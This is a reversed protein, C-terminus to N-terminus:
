VEITTIRPIALRRQPTEGPMLTQMREHMQDRQVPPKRSTYLSQASQITHKGFQENITDIAKAAHRWSEIKLTDVFLDGQEQHDDELDSLLILTSRYRSQPSFTHEYLARILPMAEQASCTARTLTGEWGNHRYDHHRLVVGLRRTRLRLRRLKAFAAEANQLLRSYVYDKDQQPPTFTQSKIISHRTAAADPTVALMRDGRLEHWIEVGPKGLVTRVWPRPQLIFDYATRLGHQELRATLNAGFGWVSNLPIRRLLIPIHRGEVGTFGHPKRFKSCIKALGKSLSLGVSVTLGLQTHIDHQIRRCIDEYSGHHIHCAGTLDLFAEDISYEEVVPTYTRMINFMRKSYLSYTEYDSPVIVLKPCTRRAKFLPMGRKVGAAKAAYSPCAVIGREQGTAMPRDRLTPDLAQEVSAFFADADIHAIAHPYGEPPIFTTEMSRDYTALFVFDLKCPSRDNEIGQLMMDGVM